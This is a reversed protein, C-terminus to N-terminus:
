LSALAVLFLAFAERPRWESSPPHAAAHVPTATGPIWAETKVADLPPAPVRHVAPRREYYGEREPGM